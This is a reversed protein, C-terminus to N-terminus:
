SKIATAVHEAVLRGSNLAWSSQEGPASAFDYIDGCLSGTDCGAVYLGDITNGNDDVAMIDDNIRVGGITTFFGNNCEFAYFPGTKLPQLYGADKLFDTDRGTDCLANYRDVTAQLNAADIDIAAALDKITDAKFVRSDGKDMDAALATKYKGKPDGSGGASGFGNIPGNTDIDDIIDQTQLIFMRDTNLLASGCESFNFNGENVFRKSNQDVWLTPQYVGKYLEEGWPANPLHPGYFMITRDGRAWAAGAKRAMYVGDGDRGDYGPSIVRDLNVHGLERLFDPSSGWGGTCVLVAKANFQIVKGDSDTALVGTVKGSSDQILEKAPTSYRIDLNRKNVEDIFSQMLAMGGGTGGANTGGVYQLSSGGFVPFFSFQGGLNECWTVTEAAKNIFKELLGPSIAYHNYAEITNILQRVDASQDQETQFHNNPAWHVAAFAFTGGAVEKKELLIANLGLDNAEILAAMGCGGAGCIVFDTDVIEEPDGVPERSMYSPLVEANTSGNDNNVETSSSNPQCAGLLAGVGVTAGTFLSGKLFARRGFSITSNIGMSETTGSSKVNDKM